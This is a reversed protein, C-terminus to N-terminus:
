AKNIPSMGVRDDRAAHIYLRLANIGKVENIIRAACRSLFAADFPHM